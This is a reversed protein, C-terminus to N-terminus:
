IRAWHRHWCIFCGDRRGLEETECARSSLAFKVPGFRSDQIESHLPPGESLVSQYSHDLFLAVGGLRCTAEGTERSPLPTM